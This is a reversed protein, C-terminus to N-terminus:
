LYTDCMLYVKLEKDLAGTVKFEFPIRGEADALTALSPVLQLLKQSRDKSLRADVSWNVLLKNIDLTGSVSADAVAGEADSLQTLTMKELRIFNNEYNMIGEAQSILLTNSAKLLQDLQRPSIRKGLIEGLGEKFLRANLMTMDKALVKLILM